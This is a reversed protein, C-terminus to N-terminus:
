HGTACFAPHSQALERDRAELTLDNETIMRKEVRIYFSIFVLILPCNLVM